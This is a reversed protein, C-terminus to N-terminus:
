LLLWRQLYRLKGFWAGTPHGRLTRGFRPEPLTGGYPAGPESAPDPLTDGYPAGLESAPEPLIDGYPAGHGLLSILPYLALAASQSPHLSPEFPELALFVHM